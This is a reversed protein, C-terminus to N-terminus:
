YFWVWSIRKEAIYRCNKQNKQPGFLIGSYILPDSLVENDKRFFYVLCKLESGKSISYLDINKEFDELFEKSSFINSQPSNQEFNKWNDLNKLKKICYKKTM